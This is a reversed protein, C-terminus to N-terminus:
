VSRLHRRMAARVEDRTPPPLYPFLKEITRFTQLGAAAALPGLPTGTAMHHLLWTNRMRGVTPVAGVEPQTRNIFSHLWNKATTSRQPGVAWQDADREALLDILEQEWQWLVPVEREGRVTTLVGQPDATIDRVRLGLIDHTSLGAGLGLALITRCDRRRQPTTQGVAWSRLAMQEHVEYPRAPNDRYVPQLRSVREDPPLVAEAIRLLMTRRTAQSTPALTPCGRAIYEAITDRHLILSKEVPLCAVLVAWRTLATLTGMLKKTPYRADTRKQAETVTARVFDRVSAWESATLSRPEFDNVSRWVEWARHDYSRDSYCHPAVLVRAERLPGDNGDLNLSHSTPLSQLWDLDAGLPRGDDQGIGDVLRNAAVYRVQAVGDPLVRDTRSRYAALDVVGSQLGDEGSTRPRVRNRNGAGLTREPHPEPVPRDSQRFISRTRTTLATQM